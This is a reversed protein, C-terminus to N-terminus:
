WALVQATACPVSTGCTPCRDEHDGGPPHLLLAASIRGLVPARLYPTASTVATEALAPVGSGTLRLPGLHVDQLGVTAAGVARRHAEELELHAPTATWGAPAPRATM